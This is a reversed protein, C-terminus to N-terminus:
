SIRVSCGRGSTTTLPSGSMEPERTYEVITKPKLGQGRMKCYLEQVLPRDSELMWDLRGDVIAQAEEATLDASFKSGLGSHRSKKELHIVSTDGNYYRIRFKERMNVGDIKERLAKDRAKAARRELADIRADAPRRSETRSEAAALGFLGRVFVLFRWLWMALLGKGFARLPIEDLLASSTTEAGGILKEATQRAAVSQSIYVKRGNAAVKHGAVAEVPGDLARRCLAAFEEATARRPLSLPAEGSCIIWIRM